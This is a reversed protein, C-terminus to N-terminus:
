SYDVGSKLCSLNQHSHPIFYDVAGLNHKIKPHIIRTQLKQSKRVESLM